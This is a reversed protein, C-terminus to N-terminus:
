LLWDSSPQQKELESAKSYHLRNRFRNPADNNNPCVLYSYMVSFATLDEKEDTLARRM